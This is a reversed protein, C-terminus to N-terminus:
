QRDETHLSLDRDLTSAVATFMTRINELSHDNLDNLLDQLGSFSAYRYLSELNYRGTDICGANERRGVDHSDTAGGASFM